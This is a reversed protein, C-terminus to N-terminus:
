ETTEPKEEKDKDNENGVELEPLGGISMLLSVLGSMASASLVAVWDADLIGTANVTLMSVATQAVTKLARRGAARWWLKDM